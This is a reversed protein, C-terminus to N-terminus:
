KEVLNGTAPDYRYHRGGSPAAAPTAASTRTVREPAPPVVSPLTKSYKEWAQMAAFRDGGNKRMQDLLFLDKEKGRTAINLMYNAMWDNGAPSNGLSVFTKQARDADGETQVGKQELLVNFVNKNVLYNLADADRVDNAGIFNGSFGIKHLFQNALDIKDQLPGSKLNPLLSKLTEVNTIMDNKASVDSILSDYFDASKEALKQNFMYGPSAKAREFEFRERDLANKEQQQQLGLVRGAAAGYDGPLSAAATVNPSVGSSGGSYPTGNQAQQNGRYDVSRYGAPVPKLGVAMDFEDTPVYKYSGENATIARMLSKMTQPDNLNLPQNPDVGMMAATDKILASTDNENSPSWRSIIAAVTPNQAYTPSLLNARMGKLGDLMSPYVRVQGGFNGVNGPNNTLAAKDLPAGDPGAPRQNKPPLTSAPMTPGDPIRPMKLPDMDAGQGSGGTLGPLGMLRGWLDRDAAERQAQQQAIGLRQQNLQLQGLSIANALGRDERSAEWQARALADQTAVRDRQLGYMGANGLAGLADLGGRGLIQGFNRRGNNNALMSLATVGALFGPNGSVVDAMSMNKPAPQGGWMGLLGGTAQGNNDYPYM